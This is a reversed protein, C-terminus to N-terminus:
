WSQNNTEVLLNITADTDAGLHVIVPYEGIKKIPGEPMRIEKRSIEQGNEILHKEIEYPGISGFLMGEENAEVSLKLKFGDLKEKRENAIKLNEKAIKKLEAKQEEFEKLNEETAYKALSKPILHNRAYGPKVKVKEGLDGLNEIKQLLIVEM